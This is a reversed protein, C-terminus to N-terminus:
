AGLAGSDLVGAKTGLWQGAVFCPCRHVVNGFLVCVSM